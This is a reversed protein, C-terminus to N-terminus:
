AGSININGAQIWPIIDSGFHIREHSIDKINKFMDAINGSIMTESLADKVEGNEILFSNKAVGSFDGSHSPTGGSFRGLLIGKDVSKIMEDLTAKGSEIDIAQGRNTSMRKGTKNAGYLSLLFSNLVGKDVYTIDEAAYGDLTIFYGGSLDTTTPRSHITLNSSAISQNLKDKYISNGTILAYDMISNELFRIFDANCQPTIIIDGVAKGPFHSTVISNASNHLMHNVWGCNQLEESLSDMSCGTYDFSSTQKGKKSTCMVWFNYNGIQSDFCVDNSNFFYHKKTSHDLTSEEIITHPFTQNAYELFAKMRDYILLSDATQPGASYSAENQQDSIDYAEDPESAEAVEVVELAASKISDKDCKNITIIGKKNECIGMLEIQIDFTTRLLSITNTQVNLEKKESIKLHCQAKQAGAKLLEQVCFKTTEKHDM